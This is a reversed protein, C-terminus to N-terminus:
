VIAMLNIYIVFLCLIDFLNYLLIAYVFMIM